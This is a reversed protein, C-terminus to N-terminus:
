FRMLKLESIFITMKSIWSRADELPHMSLSTSQKPKRTLLERTNLLTQQMSLLQPPQAFPIPYLNPFQLNGTANSKM